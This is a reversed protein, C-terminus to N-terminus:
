LYGALLVVLAALILLGAGALLALTLPRSSNSIRFTSSPFCDYFHFEGVM